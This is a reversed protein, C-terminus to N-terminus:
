LRLMEEIVSEIETVAARGRAGLDYVSCGELAATRYAARRNLGQRLAPVTLEHLAGGVARSMANIAEVQNVVLRARMSPNRGRAREIMQEIRATAWLDMPSPLVPILLAHADALATQTQAADTAPPCDVVVFDHVLRLRRLEAELGNAGGAVAVPFRAPEAARAWLTASGQPDADVVVCRGRRALGAALNMAITTKGVGGKHNAVAYVTATM